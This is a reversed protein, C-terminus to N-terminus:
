TTRTGVSKDGGDMSSRRREVNDLVQRKEADTARLWGAIESITRQCGLCWGTVPDLICVGNCPSALDECQDTM